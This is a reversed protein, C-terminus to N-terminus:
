RYTSPFVAKTSTAAESTTSNSNTNNSSNDPPITTTGGNEAGASGNSEPNQEPTTGEPTTPTEESPTTTGPNGTDPTTGGTGTGTGSDTGSGSGTGDTTGTGSNDTDAPDKPTTNDTKESITVTVTPTNAPDSLAITDPLIVQVPIKYTGPKRGSINASVEIDSPKLAELAEPTGKVNLTVQQNAPDTIVNTYNDSAGKFIVPINTVDKQSFSEATIKVQVTSPAIRDAGEPIDLKVTLNTTGAEKISGLDVTATISDGLAALSKESGYVTVENVSAETNALILSNPLEGTYSLNLPLTKVSTGIPVEVKVSAPSVVADKIVSGDKAYVILSVTKSVTDTAGEINVVGQVKQVDELRSQPLTVSVKDTGDTIVPDGAQNGTAPEGQTVIEPVFANSTKEEITVKVTSPSMSVYQVSAPLEPILPLTMTGAQTVQSLDVKVKYSESSFYSTLDSQQGRVQISVRTPDLSKLVYKDEDFGYAQVQVNDIVNTGMASSVSTTRISAAGGDLHVMVWLLISVVLALVKAVTNNNIWKDMM